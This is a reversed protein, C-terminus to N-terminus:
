GEYFENLDSEEGDQNRQLFNDNSARSIGQQIYLLRRSM